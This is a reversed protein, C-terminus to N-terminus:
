AAFDISDGKKLFVYAKRMRNQVGFGRRTRLFVKKGKTNVMNVRQPTVKYLAKLAAVVEHKTATPTVEFTYVNFTSLNAAKETLRPRRIVNKIGVVAPQKKKTDAGSSQAVTKVVDALGGAKKPSAKKEVPAKKSGFIAM